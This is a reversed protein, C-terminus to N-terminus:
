QAPDLLALGPLEMPSKTTAALNATSCLEADENQNMWAQEGTPWDGESAIWSTLDADAPMEATSSFESHLAQLQVVYLLQVPVVFATHSAKDGSRRHDILHYPWVRMLM